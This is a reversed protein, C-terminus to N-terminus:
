QSVAANFQLNFLKNIGPLLERLLAARDIVNKKVQPVYAPVVLNEGLFAAFETLVTAAFERPTAYWEDCDMGEHLEIFSLMKALLEEETM